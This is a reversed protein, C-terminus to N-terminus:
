FGQCIRSKPTSEYIKNGRQAAFTYISVQAPTMDSSQYALYQSAPTSYIARGQMHANYYSSNASNGYGHLYLYGDGDGKYYGSSNYFKIRWMCSNVHLNYDRSDGDNVGWWRTINKCEIPGSNTVWSSGNWHQFTLQHNPSGFFAYNGTFRFTWSYCCIYLYKTGGNPTLTNDATWSNTVVDRVNGNVQNIVSGIAM